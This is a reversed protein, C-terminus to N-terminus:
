AARAAAGVAVYWDAHNYAFIAKHLDTEAGAAKLYRAAAFIADVPNYPDKQGDGNADVGYATGARRAHVADLRARRGVLRVPQPRLRDRDRQDRRPGRWPVGYQMAAAQYIPLLFPPIRFQEIFFNPVGAPTLDLTPAVTYGPTDPTPQAGETQVPTDPTENPTATGDRNADTLEGEGGSGANTKPVSRGGKRRAAEAPRVVGGVADPQEDHRDRHEAHHRHRNEHRADGPLHRHRDDRGADHRDDRDHRHDRDGAAPTTSTTPVVPDDPADGAADHGDDSGPDADATEELM